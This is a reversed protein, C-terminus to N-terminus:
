GQTGTAQAAVANVSVDSSFLYVPKKFGAIEVYCRIRQAKTIVGEMGVYRSDGGIVTVSTGAELKVGLAGTTAMVRNFHVLHEAMAAVQARTFSSTIENFITAANEDLVPLKSAARLVKAMHAPAKDARKAERKAERAVRKAEKAIAKEDSVAAAKAEREEPSLKVRAVKVKAEVVEGADESVSPKAKKASKASKRSKAANVAEDIASLTNDLKTDNENNEM